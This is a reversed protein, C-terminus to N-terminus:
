YRDLAIIKRRLGIGGKMKRSCKKLKIIEIKMKKKIELSHFLAMIEMKKLFHLDVWRLTKTVKVKKLCPINILSSNNNCFFQKKRSIYKKQITLIQSFHFLTYAFVLRKLDSSIKSRDTADILLFNNFVVM